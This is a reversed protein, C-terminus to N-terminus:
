KDKRYIKGVGFVILISVLLLAVIMYVPNGQPDEVFSDLNKNENNKEAIIPMSEQQSDAPPSEEPPLFFGTEPDFEAYPTLMDEDGAMVPQLLLPTLGFCVLLIIRYMLNFGVPIVMQGSLPASM